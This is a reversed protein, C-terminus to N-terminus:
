RLKKLQIASGHAQGTGGGAPKRTVGTIVKNPLTTSASHLKGQVMIIRIEKQDTANPPPYTQNQPDQGTFDEIWVTVPPKVQNSYSFACYTTGWGNAHTDWTNGWIHKKFGLADAFLVLEAKQEQGITTPYYRNSPCGGCLAKGKANQGHPHQAVFRGFDRAKEPSDKPQGYIHYAFLGHDTVYVVGHCNGLGPFVIDQPDFAAEHMNVYKM